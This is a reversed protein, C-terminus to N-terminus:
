DRCASRSSLWKGRRCRRSWHSSASASDRIAQRVVGPELNGSWPVLRSSRHDAAKQQAVWKVGIQRDLVSVPRCRHSPCCSSRLSLCCCNRRCRNRFRFRRLSWDRVWVWDCASLPLPCPRKSIPARAPETMGPFSACGVHFRHTSQDSPSKRGARRSLDPRRGLGPRQTELTEHASASRGSPRGPWPSRSPGWPVKGRRGVAFM